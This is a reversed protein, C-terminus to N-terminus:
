TGVQSIGQQNGGEYSDTWRGTNRLSGTLEDQQQHQQQHEAATHKNYNFIPKFPIM